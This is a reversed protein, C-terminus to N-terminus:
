LKNREKIFRIFQDKTKFKSTCPACFDSVWVDWLYPSQETPTFLKRIQMSSQTAEEKSIPKGCMFCNHEMSKIGWQSRVPLDEFLYKENTVPNFKYKKKDSSM